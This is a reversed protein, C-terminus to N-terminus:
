FSARTIKELAVTWLTWQQQGDCPLAGRVVQPMGAMSIKGAVDREMDDSSVIGNRANLGLEPARGYFTKARSNGEDGADAVAVAFIFPSPELPLGGVCESMSSM